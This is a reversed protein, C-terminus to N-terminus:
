RDGCCLILNLWRNWAGFSNWAYGGSWVHGLWAELQRALEVFDDTWLAASVNGLSCLDPLEFAAFGLLVHQDAEELALVAPDLESFGEGPVDYLVRAFEAVLNGKVNKERKKQTLTLLAKLRLFGEREKGYPNLSALTQLHLFCFRFTGRMSFSCRFSSWFPNRFSNM